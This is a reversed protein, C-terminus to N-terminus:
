EPHDSGLLSPLLSILSPLLAPKLLAAGVLWEKRVRV